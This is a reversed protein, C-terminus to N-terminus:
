SALNNYITNVDELAKMISHRLFDVIIYAKAWERKM